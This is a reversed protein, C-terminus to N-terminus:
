ILNREIYEVTEKFKTNTLMREFKSKFTQFLAKFKPDHMVGRKRTYKTHYYQYHHISEHIVAEEWWEVTSDTDHPSYVIVEKKNPDYRGWYSKSQKRIDLIFDTPIGILKM